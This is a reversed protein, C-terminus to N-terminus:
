IAGYRSYVAIETVVLISIFVLILYDSNLGLRADSFVVDQLAFGFMQGNKVRYFEGGTRTAAARLKNGNVTPIDATGSFGQQKMTTNLNGYLDRTESNSDIGVFYVKVGNRRAEEITKELSTEATNQGDTIVILRKNRENGALMETGLSIAPALATGPSKLGPEISKITEIVQDKDRTPSQVVKSNGAFAVVSINTTGRTRELWKVLSGEVYDLRSPEYDPTMMSQSRDVAVVFDTNAVPQTTRVEISDTAALFLLTVILLKVGLVMPSAATSYDHVEKLTQYNGLRTMREKRFRRMYYYSGVTLVVLFGLMYLNEPPLELFVLFWPTVIEM